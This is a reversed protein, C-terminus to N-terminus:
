GASGPPGPHAGAGGPAGWEGAALRRVLEDDAPPFPYGPLDELRVWRFQAVWIARPRQGAEWPVRYFRLELPGATVAWMREGVRLHLGLEERLERVLAQQDSEGRERKGGPFEWRGPQGADPMRQSVLVRGGRIIVAAVVVTRRGGSM